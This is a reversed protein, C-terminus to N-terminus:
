WTMRPAGGRRLQARTREIPREVDLDEVAGGLSMAEDSEEELHTDLTAEAEARARVRGKQWIWQLNTRAVLEELPQAGVAQRNIAVLQNCIQHM